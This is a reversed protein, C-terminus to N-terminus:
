RAQTVEISAVHRVERWPKLDDAVILRYAGEHAPLAAGNEKDALIVPTASLDEDTEALALTAAYGDQGRVVVYDRMSKGHAMPGTPTGAERMVASLPPGQYLATKGGHTVKVDAQPLDDLDAESLVVKQGSPGIVTVSGAPPAAPAAAPAAALTPTALLAAAAALAPLPKM